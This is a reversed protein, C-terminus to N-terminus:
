TPPQFSPTRYRTAPGDHGVGPSVSLEHLGASGFMEPSAQFPEKWSSQSAVFLSVSM